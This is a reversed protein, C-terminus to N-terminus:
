RSCRQFQSLMNKFFLIKEKEAPSGFPLLEELLEQIAPMNEPRIKDPSPLPSGYEPLPPTFPYAKAGSVQYIRCTGSEHFPCTQFLSNEADSNERHYLPFRLCQYICTGKDEM